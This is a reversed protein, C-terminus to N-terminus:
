GLLPAYIVADHMPSLASSDEARDYDCQTMSSMTRVSSKTRRLGCAERGFRLVAADERRPAACLHCQGMSSAAADPTKLQQAMILTV